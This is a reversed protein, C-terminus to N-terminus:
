SPNENGQVLNLFQTKTAPQAVRAAITFKPNFVISGITGTGPQGAQDVTGQFHQRFPPSLAELAFSGGGSLPALPPSAQQTLTAWLSAIDIIRSTGSRM